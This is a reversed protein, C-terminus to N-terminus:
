MTSNVLMKMGKQINEILGEDVEEKLNYVYPLIIRKETNIGKIKVYVYTFGFEYRNGYERVNLVETRNQEIRIEEVEKGRAGLQEVIYGANQIHFVGNIVPKGKLKNKTEKGIGMYFEFALASFTIMCSKGQVSSKKIENDNNVYYFSGNLNGVSKLGKFVTEIYDEVSVITSNEIGVKILHSGTKYDGTLVEFQIWVNSLTKDVVQVEEKKVLQCDYVYVAMDGWYDRIDRYLEKIIINMNNKIERDKCMIYGGLVM